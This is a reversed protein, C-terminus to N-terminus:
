VASPYGEGWLVAFRRVIRAFLELLRGDKFLRHLRAVLEDHPVSDFYKRIDLKLYFPFRCTFERARLVAAVRGRGRRCAYTDDILWREFVPECVNMVGHHLVREPFCPATIIREKPDHIVFQRFRGLSYTGRLLEDRM